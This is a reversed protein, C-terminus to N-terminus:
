QRQAAVAAALVKQAAVLHPRDVMKGDLGVTGAGPNAAFADVVRRAHAVEEDAPTFGDNIPGVQAPHIALRGSFGEARAARSSALLGDLDRFDAHLTDIAPVGAAHAAMLTLSRVLQYTFAFQGDPGRNTSAGLAASLDEAGWTLGALRSLGAGAYDGLRFPALPTETAVPIIPTATDHLGLRGELADLKMSLERVCDPGEAKPQMIGCPRHPMIAALDADTLGSDLPNVRVWLQVGRQGQPRAALFAATIERAAPKREPAVSDELDIIVADAGCGDAKALKAESDGPIFLLSRLANM